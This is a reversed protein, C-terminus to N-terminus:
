GLVSRVSEEFRELPVYFHEGTDEFWVCDGCLIGQREEYSGERELEREWAECEELVIGCRVCRERTDKPKRTRIEVDFARLIGLVQRDHLGFEDGLAARSDGAVYRAVIQEAVMSDAASM